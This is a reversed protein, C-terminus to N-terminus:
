ASVKPPSSSSPPRAPSRSPRRLINMAPSSSNEAAERTPPNAVEGAKKSTARATCPAPPASTAGAASDRIVVVKGSPRRAGAREADVGRHADGAARDSQDAAAQQGGVGRPPPHQEDVDRDAGRDRQGCRPHQGLGRAAVAPEVQGAGEGAGGPDGGQDVPQDAGGGARAADGVPT